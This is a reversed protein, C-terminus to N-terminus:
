EAEKAGTRDHGSRNPLDVSVVHVFMSAVPISVARTRQFSGNPIRGLGCTRCAICLWTLRGELHRGNDSVRCQRVRMLFIREYQYRVSGASAGSCEKPQAVIEGRMSIEDGGDITM